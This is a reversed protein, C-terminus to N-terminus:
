CVFHPRLIEIITKVPFEKLHFKWTKAYQRAYLRRFRGDPLRGSEELSGPRYAVHLSQMPGLRLLKLQRLSLFQFSSCRCVLLQHVCPKPIANPNMTMRPFTAVSTPEGEKPERSSGRARAKHRHKALQRAKLLMQSNFHGSHFSGKLEPISWDGLKSGLGAISGRTETASPAKM